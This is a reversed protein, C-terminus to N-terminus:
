NLASLQKFEVALHAAARTHFNVPGDKALYVYKNDYKGFM